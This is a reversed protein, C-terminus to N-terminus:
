EMSWDFEGKMRSEELSFLRSGSGVGPVKGVIIQSYVSTIPDIAGSHLVRKIDQKPKEFAISSLFGREPLIPNDKKFFTVSGTCTMFDSILAATEENGTKSLIEQYLVERAADLGLVKEVDLVNNSTTEIDCIGQLNLIEVLNSGTAVFMKEKENPIKNYDLINPIGVSKELIGMLGSMQSDNALHVDLLGLFDPSSCVTYEGFINNAIYELTLFNEGMKIYDFHFRFVISPRDRIYNPLLNLERAISYWFDDTSLSDDILSNTIDTIYYKLKHQVIPETIDVDTKVIMSTSSQRITGDMIQQLTPSPRSITGSGLGANHFSSLSNQTAVALANHALRIGIQEGPEIKPPFLIPPISPVPPISSRKYNKSRPPTRSGGSRSGKSSTSTTRSRPSNTSLM